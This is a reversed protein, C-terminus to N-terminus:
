SFPVVCGSGKIKIKLPRKASTTIAVWAEGAPGVALATAASSGDPAGLYTAYILRDGKPSLKAVFGDYTYGPSRPAAQPFAQYANATPFDTSSTEGAVYVNGQADVAVAWAADGVFQHYSSRADNGGLYTSWAHRGAADIKAVFADYGQPQRRFAGELAPLDKSDTYGAIYVNGQGDVAIANVYDDGSGGYTFAAATPADGAAPRPPLVDALRPQPWSGLALLALVLPRPNEMGFGLCSGRRFREGDEHSNRGQEPWPVNRFGFPHEIGSVSWPLRPQATCTRPDRALLRVPRLRDTM